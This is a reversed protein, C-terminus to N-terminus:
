QELRARGRVPMVERAIARNRSQNKPKNQAHRRGWSTAAGKAWRCCSEPLPLLVYQLLVM